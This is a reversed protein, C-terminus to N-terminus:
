TECDNTEYDIDLELNAPDQNNPYKLAFIYFVFIFVRLMHQSDFTKVSNAAHLLSM